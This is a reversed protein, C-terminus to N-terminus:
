AKALEIYKGVTRAMTAAVAYSIGRIKISRSEVMVTDTKGASSFHITTDSGDNKWGLSSAPIEAVCTVKQHLQDEFTVVVPILHAAMNKVRAIDSKRRDDVDFVRFYVNALHSSYSKQLVSRVEDSYRTSLSDVDSAAIALSVKM